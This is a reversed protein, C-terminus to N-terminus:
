KREALFVVMNGVALRGRIVVGEERELWYFRLSEVDSGIVFRRYSGWWYFWDGRRLGVGKEFLGLGEM